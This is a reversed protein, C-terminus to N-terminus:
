LEKALIANNVVFFQGTKGREILNLNVLRNLYRTVSAPGEFGLEEMIVAFQKRNFENEKVDTGVGAYTCIQKWLKIEVSEKPDAYYVEEKNPLVTRDKFILNDNDWMIGQAMMRTDSNGSRVKTVKFVRMDEILQSDAMQMVNSLWDTFTKGGRIMEKNLSSFQGHTKNHHNVLMVSLEFKNKIRSITGLLPMLHKNDSVDVGTSTYLNDVVLVDFKKRSYQLSTEIREWNDQFVGTDPQFPVIHLNNIDGPADPENFYQKIKKIRKSVEGNQMEFQILLVNRPKPVAYGLFPIGLAICIAFQAVLFSKGLNDTGAICGTGQEELIEEVIYGPQKWESDIFNNVTLIDFGGFDSPKDGFARGSRVLREFDEKSGGGQFYDTIDFGEPFGEDFTYVNLKVERDQDVVARALKKSGERGAEDNDYVINITSFDRLKSIDEPISGSGATFCIANLDNSLMTVVDKEGEVIYLTQDGPIRTFIEEPYIKNASAGIQFVKGDLDKHFKFHRYKENRKIPFIYRENDPDYGIFLKRVLEESWPMDGIAEKTNNKVYTAAENIIKQYKIPINSGNKQVKPTPPPKMTTNEGRVKSQFTKYGGEGCGAFCKWKGDEVNFSFSPNKDEHFPCLGKAQQGHVKINKVHNRYFDTYNVM